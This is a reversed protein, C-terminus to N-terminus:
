PLGTRISCHYGFNCRTPTTLTTKFIRSKLSSPFKKLTELVLDSNPCLSAPLCDSWEPLQHNPHRQHLEQLAKADDDQACGESNLSRMLDRFRGERALFLARKANLQSQSNRRPNAQQQTADLRADKWLSVIDGAQWQHVRNSLIASM